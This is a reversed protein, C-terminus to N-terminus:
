KLKRRGRVAKDIEVAVVVSLASLGVEGWKVVTLPV